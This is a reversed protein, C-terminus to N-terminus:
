WLHSPKRKGYFGKRMFVLWYRSLVIRVRYLPAVNEVM